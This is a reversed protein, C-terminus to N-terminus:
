RTGVRDVCTLGVTPTARQGGTGRRRGRSATKTARSCSAAVTADIAEMSRDDESPVMHAYLETTRGFSHGLYASIVRLPVGATALHAAFTHRLLHYGTKPLGAMKYVKSIPIVNSTLGPFVPGSTQPNKKLVETATVSIPIIRDSKTKKGNLRIRNADFDVDEWRLDVIESIRAGTGLIM